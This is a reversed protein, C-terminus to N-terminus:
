PQSEVTGIWVTGYNPPLAQVAAAITADLNDTDLLAPPLLADLPIDGFRKVVRGTVPDCMSLGHETDPVNMSIVDIGKTTHVLEHMDKIPADDLDMSQASPKRM